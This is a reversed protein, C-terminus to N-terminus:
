RKLWLVKEELLAPIVLYKGDPSLTFDAPGGVPTKANRVTFNKQQLDGVVVVGSKDYSKWDSFYLKGRYLAVGDLLGKYGELETAKSGEQEIVYVAGNPVEGETSFGVCYLKDTTADYCLGNAGPISTDLALAKHRVVDVMFLKGIDTASVLLQGKVAVVDNLFTTGPLQLEFVTKRSRIDFGVIRDIDAVYLVEGIFASGKPANLTGKAPLFHLVEVKGDATMKSIFGDGDKKQPELEKGINSVYYHGEHWIVSEPHSFGTVAKNEQWASATLAAACSLICAM